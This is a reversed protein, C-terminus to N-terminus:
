NEQLYDTIKPDELFVEYNEIMYDDSSEDQLADKKNKKASNKTPSSAKTSHQEPSEGSQSNKTTAKTPPSQKTSPQEPSESAQSNKTPDRHDDQQKKDTPSKRAAGDEQNENKQQEDVQVQEAENDTNNKSTKREETITKDVTPQENSQPDNKRRRKERTIIDEIDDESKGLKNLLQLAIRYRRQLQTYSLDSDGREANKIERVLSTFSVSLAGPSIDTETIKSVYEAIEDWSVGLQRANTIETKLLDLLSMLTSPKHRMASIDARAEEIEKESLINKLKLVKAM